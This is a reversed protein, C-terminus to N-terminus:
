HQGRQSDELVPQVIEGERASQGVSIAVVDDEGVGGTIEVAVGNDYGLTAEALHMRHERVV